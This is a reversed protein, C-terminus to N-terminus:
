VMMFQVFTHGLPSLGARATALTLFAREGKGSTWGGMMTTSITRPPDHRVERACLGGELEVHLLLLLGESVSAASGGHGPEGGTTLTRMAVCGSTCVVDVILACWWWWWWWWWCLGVQDEPTAGSLDGVYQRRRRRQQPGHSTRPYLFRHPGGMLGQRTRPPRSPTHSTLLHHLRRRHRTPQPHLVISPEPLGACRWKHLAAAPHPSVIFIIIRLHATLPASSTTGRTWLCLSASPQDDGGDDGSARARRIACSCGVGVFYLAWGGEMGNNVVVVPPRAFPSYFFAGAGPHAGGSVLSFRPKSFRSPPPPPVARKHPISSASSSSSGPGSSPAGAPSLPPAPSSAPESPLSPHCSFTHRPSRTAEGSVPSSVVGANEVLASSSASMRLAPVATVTSLTARRPTAVDAAAHPTKHPSTGDDVRPSPNDRNRNDVIGSERSPGPLSSMDPIPALDDQSAEIREMEVDLSRKELLVPARWDKRSRSTSSSSSQLDPPADVLDAPGRSCRASVTELSELSISGHSATTNPMSGSQFGPSPLQQVATRASPSTVIFPGIKTHVEEHHDMGAMGGILSGAPSASAVTPSSSGSHPYVPDDGTLVLDAGDFMQTPLRTRTKGTWSWAFREDAKVQARPMRWVLGRAYLLTATTHSQPYSKCAGTIKKPRALPPTSLSAADDLLSTHPPAAAAVTTTLQVRGDDEKKNAERDGQEDREPAL